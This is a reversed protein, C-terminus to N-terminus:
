ILAATIGSASGVVIIGAMTAGLRKGHQEMEGHQHAHAMQAGVRLVGLVCVVTAIWLAWRGITMLKDAGPPAEGSGFDPVPSGAALVTHALHTIM